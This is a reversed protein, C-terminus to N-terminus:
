KSQVFHARPHSIIFAAVDLAQQKTLNPMQYPMNNYVFSAIVPLHVMAAGDSFSNKGWLPPAIKTGLGNTGHCAACVTTFIVKGSDPNPKHSTEIRKVGIWPIKGYIPLGKSIWHFYAILGVMQKSNLPLPKGNMSRVFCSNIQDALDVVSKSRPSYKPYLAAVGALSFGGNKGGELSGEKFHCNSCNLVNGVYKGAYRRTHNMINYGEVVAARISEPAESPLRRKYKADITSKDMQPGTAGSGSTLFMSGSTVLAIVPLIVIAFLALAKRKM